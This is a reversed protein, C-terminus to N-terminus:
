LWAKAIANEARKVHARATSVAVGLEAAIAEYTAYVRFQSQVVNKAIQYWDGDSAILRRIEAPDDVQHRVWRWELGGFRLM